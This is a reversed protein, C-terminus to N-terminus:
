KETGTLIQHCIFVSNEFATGCMSVIADELHELRAGDKNQGGEKNLVM